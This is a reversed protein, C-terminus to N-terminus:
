GCSGGRPNRGLQCSAESRKLKLLQLFDHSFERDARSETGTQRGMAPTALEAAPARYGEGTFGRVDPSLAPRPPATDHVPRRLKRRRAPGQVPDLM